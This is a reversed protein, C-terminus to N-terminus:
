EVQLRTRGDVSMIRVTATNPLKEAIYARAVDITDFASKEDRWVMSVDDRVQVKYYVHRRWQRTPRWAPEGTMIAFAPM